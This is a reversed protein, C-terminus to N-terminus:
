KLLNNYFRRVIKKEVTNKLTKLPSSLSHSGFFLSSYMKLNNRELFSRYEELLDLKMSIYKKNKLKYPSEGLVINKNIYKGITKNGRFGLLIPLFELSLINAFVKKELYNNKMLKLAHDENWDKTFFTHFSYGSYFSNSQNLNNLNELFNSALFDKYSSILTMSLPLSRNFIRM